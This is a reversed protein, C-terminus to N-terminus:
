DVARVYTAEDLEWGGGFGPPAPEIRQQRLTLRNTVTANGGVLLSGQVTAEDGTVKLNGTVYVIGHLVSAYKDSEDSDTSGGYAAGAPNFNTDLGNEDLDAGDMQLDLDGIVILCPYGAMAPEMLVSNEIQVERATIIMTGIIRSNRIRVTSNGADISYIGASNTAGYPNRGPGLVKEDMRGGSLASYGIATADDLYGGMGDRTPMTLATVGGTSTRYYTSGSVTASSTVDLDVRAGSASVAGQAWITGMGTITSSISLTGGVALAANLASIPESRPRVRVSRIQNAGHIRGESWLTMADTVNNALNGDVGDSARVAITGEDLTVNAVVGAANGVRTRAGLMNPTRALALEIGSEALRRAEERARVQDVTRTDLRAALTAALALTTVLAVTAMVVVYVGGRRARARKPEHGPKM